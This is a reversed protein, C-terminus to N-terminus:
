KKNGLGGFRSWYSESYPDTPYVSLPSRAEDRMVVYLQKVSTEVQANIAVFINGSSVLLLYFLLNYKM